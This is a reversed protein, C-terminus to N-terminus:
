YALINFNFLIIDLLISTIFLDFTYHHCNIHEAKEIYSEGTTHMWSGAKCSEFGSDTLRTRWRKVVLGSFLRMILRFPHEISKTKEHHDLELQSM